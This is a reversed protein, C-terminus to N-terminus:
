HICRTSCKAPGSCRGSWRCAPSSRSPPRSSTIAGTIRSSISRCTHASRTPRRAASSPSGSWYRMTSRTRGVGATGPRRDPHLADLADARLDGAASRRVLHCASLIVLHSPTDSSPPHLISSPALNALRHWRRLLDRARQAVHILAHPWTGYDVPLTARRHKPEPGDLAGTAPRPNPSTACAACTRAPLRPWVAAAAARGVPSQHPRGAM